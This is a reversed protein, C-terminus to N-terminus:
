RLKFTAITKEKSNVTYVPCVSLCVPLLANHPRMYPVAVYYIYSILVAFNRVAFNPGQLALFLM